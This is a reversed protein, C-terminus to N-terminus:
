LVLKVKLKDGELIEEKRAMLEVMDWNASIYRGALWVAEGKTDEPLNSVLETDVAGPHIGFALVGQAADGLRRRTLHAGISNMNAITKEGGMLLLPLMGRTMLYTGKLNVEWTAWWSAPDTEALPVWKEVRGANNAVIELRGFAGEVKATAHAVSREDAVDLALKFGQPPPHSASQAANLVATEVADLSSRGCPGAPRSASPPPSQQTRTM